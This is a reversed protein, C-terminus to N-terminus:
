DHAGAMFLLMKAPMLEWSVGGSDHVISHASLPQVLNNPPPPKQLATSFHYKGWVHATFCLM